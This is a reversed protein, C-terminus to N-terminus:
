APVMAARIVNSLVRTPQEAYREGGIWYTPVNYVGNEYAPEDFGVIKDAFQRTVIANRLEATDVFEKLLSCLIESDNIETGEEWYARYLTEIVADQVGSLKALEVAEHANHSRMHEPRKVTPKDMNEAAYALEMRTPTKPKPSVPKPETNPAPTAPWELNEPYLEYGIWDFSVDFETALQKTQFVAIWCWPCIFDHAVPIVLPM